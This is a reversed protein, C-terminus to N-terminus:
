CDYTNFSCIRELFHNIIENFSEMDCSKRIFYVEGNEVYEAWYYCIMEYAGSQYTIKVANGSVSM